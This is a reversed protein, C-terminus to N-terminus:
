EEGYYYKVLSAMRQNEPFDAWARFTKETIPPSPEVGSAKKIEKVNQNFQKAERVAGAMGETDGKLRALKYKTSIRSKQMGYEAMLEKVAGQSKYHKALRLPMFGLGSLALEGPSLTLPRGDIDLQPDGRFSTVGETAQRHARSLKTM